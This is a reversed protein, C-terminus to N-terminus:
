SCYVCFIKLFSNFWFFIRNLLFYWNGRSELSLKLLTEDASDFAVGMDNVKAVLSNGKTAIMINAPRLDRHIIQKDHLHDVASVVERSEYFISM